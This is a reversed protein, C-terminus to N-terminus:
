PEATGLRKIFAEEVDEDEGARDITGNNANDAKSVHQYERNQEEIDHGGQALHVANEVLTVFVTETDAVQKTHQGHRYVTRKGGESRLSRLQFRFSWDQHHFVQLCFVGCGVAFPNAGQVADRKGDPM